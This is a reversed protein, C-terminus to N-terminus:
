LVYFMKILENEGSLLDIMLFNLWCQYSSDINTDELLMSYPILFLFYTNSFTFIGALCGNLVGWISHQM